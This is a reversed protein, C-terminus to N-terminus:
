FTVSFSELSLIGFGVFLKWFKSCYQLKFEHETFILLHVFQM